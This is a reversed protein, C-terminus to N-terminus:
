GVCATRVVSALQGLTYPKSLFGAFGATSIRSAVRPDVQGSMAIVRPRSTTPLKSVEHLVHFGDWKPMKIDTIVAAYPSSSQLHVYAADWSICGTCNYGIAQLAATMSQLVLTDNDIVLIALDNAEPKAQATGSLHVPLPASALLCGFGGPDCQHSVDCELIHVLSALVNNEAWTKALSQQGTEEQTALRYTFSLELTKTTLGVHQRLQGGVMIRDDDAARITERGMHRVLQNLKDRDAVFVSGHDGDSDSALEFTANHNRATLDRTADRLFQGLQIPMLGSKNAPSEPKHPTPIAAEVVREKPQTTNLATTTSRQANSRRIFNLALLCLGGAAAAITKWPISWSSTPLKNALAHQEVRATEARSPVSAVRQMQAHNEGKGSTSVSNSSSLGLLVQRPSYTSAPEPPSELMATSEAVVRKLWTERQDLDQVQMAAIAASIAISLSPGSLHETKADGYLLVATELVEAFRQMRLLLVLQAVKLRLTAEPANKSESVEIAQKYLSLRKRSIALPGPQSLSHLTSLMYAKLQTAEGAALAESPGGITIRRALMNISPLEVETDLALTERAFIAVAKPIRERAVLQIAAVQGVEISQKEMEALLNLVRVRSNRRLISRDGLDAYAIALLNFRFAAQSDGGAVARDSALQYAFSHFNPDWSAEVYEVIKHFREAWRKQSPPPSEGALALLSIEAQLISNRPQDRTTLSNAPSDEKVGRRAMLQDFFALRADLLRLIDADAEQNQIAHSIGAKWAAIVTEDMPALSLSTAVDYFSEGTAVSFAVQDARVAAACSVAILVLPLLANPISNTIEKGVGPTFSRTHFM